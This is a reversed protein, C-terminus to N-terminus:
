IYAVTVPVQICEPLRHPSVMVFYHEKPDEVHVHWLPNAFMKKPDLPPENEYLKGTGILKQYDYADM